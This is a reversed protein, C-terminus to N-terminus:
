ENIADKFVMLSNFRKSFCLGRELRAPALVLSNNWCSLRRCQGWWFSDCKFEAGYMLLPQNGTRGCILAQTAAANEDSILTGRLM